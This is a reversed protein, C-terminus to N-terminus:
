LVLQSENVIHQRNPVTRLHQWTLFLKSWPSNKSSNLSFIFFIVDFPMNFFHICKVKFKINEGKNIKEGLQAFLVRVFYRVEPPFSNWLLTTPPPYNELFYVGWASFGLCFNDVQPRFKHVVYCCWQFVINLLCWSVQTCCLLMVPVSHEASM